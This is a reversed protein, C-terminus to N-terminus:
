APLERLLMAQEASFCRMARYREFLEREVPRLNHKHVASLARVDEGKIDKGYYWRVSYTNADYHSASEIIGLSGHAENYQVTDGIKM